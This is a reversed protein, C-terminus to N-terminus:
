SVTVAAESRVCVTRTVEARIALARYFSVVRHFGGEATEHGQEGHKREALDGDRGVGPVLDVDDAGRGDEGERRGDGLSEAAGGAELRRDDLAGARAAPELEEALPRRALVGSMAFEDRRMLGVSTSSHAVFPTFCITSTLIPNSPM